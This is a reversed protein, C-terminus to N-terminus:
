PFRAGASIVTHPPLVAHAAITADNGIACDDGIRANRGVRVNRGLTVRDGLQADREIRSGDGIALDDGARVDEALRVRPGVQARVGLRVDEGLRIGADVVSADGVRVNDDVRGSAGLVSGRGLRSAEGLRADRELRAATKVRADVDVRADEGVVAAAGVRAGRRVVAGDCVTAEPSVVAGSEVRASPSVGSQPCAGFGALVTVLTAQDNAPEPDPEAGGISVVNEIFLAAAAGVEVVVTRRKTAGARLAGIACTVVGGDHSCGPSATVFTTGAPLTDILVVASADTPGQNRGELTYEIEEGRGVPDPPASEAVALDTREELDLEFGITQEASRGGDSVLVRVLHGHRRLATTLDLSTATQEFAAVQWTEGADDSYLVTAPLSADGDPDSATWRVAVTEGTPTVVEGDLPATIALDPPSPSLDTADLLADGPGMLEIRATEALRPVHFAFTALRRAAQSVDPITFVPDFPFRGLSAGGADRLVVAWDGGEGPQAFDDGVVDYLPFLEGFPDGADGIVRGQVLHLDPDPLSLLQHLAHWYACQSIWRRQVAPGMVGVVNRQRERRILGDRLIRHGHAVPLAMNHWNLQCDRLMQEDAWPFPLTHLLEHEVTDAATRLLPPDPTRPALIYFTKQSNAFGVTSEPEVPEVLVYDEPALVVAVRDAGALLNGGAMLRALEAGIAATRAIRRRVIESDADARAIIATLDQVAHSPAIVAGPAVPMTDPLRRESIDALADSIDRLARKQEPTLPVFTGPVFHVRLRGTDEVTGLVFVRLGTGSGDARILEAVIRYPETRDFTFPPAGSPPLGDSADLEIQFARTPGCQPGLPAAFLESVYLLRSRPGQDLMFRVRVGINSGNASGAFVIKDRQSDDTGRLGFLLSHRDRVMALQAIYLRPSVRTLQKGPQDVFTYDDQWVGQSPEFAGKFDDVGCPPASTVPEDTIQISALVPGDNSPNPDNINPEVWAENVEPRGPNFLVAVRIEIEASEGPRLELGGQTRCEVEVGNTSSCTFRDSRAGLFRLSAPLMDVVTAGGLSTITGVNTVRIRFFGVSNVVFPGVAEKEITLDASGGIGHALRTADNQPNTDGPTGVQAVNFAVSGAEADLRVRVTLILGLRQGPALPGPHTCVIVPGAPAMPCTWGAGQSSVYEVEPPLTDTVTIEGATPTDGVNRVEIRYTGPMGVRFTGDNSKAIALDIGM